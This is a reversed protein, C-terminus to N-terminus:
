FSWLARGSLLGVRDWLDDDGEHTVCGGGGGGAHGHGLVLLRLGSGEKIEERDFCELLLCLSTEQM